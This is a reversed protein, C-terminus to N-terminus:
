SVPILTKRGSTDTLEFSTPREARDLAHLFFGQKLTIPVWGTPVRLRISVVGSTVSGHILVIVRDPQDGVQQMGWSIPKPTGCSGSGGNRAVVRYCREPNAGPQVWLTAPGETTDLNILKRTETVVPQEPPDLTVSQSAVIGGEQNQAEITAGGSNQNLSAMLYNEVIPVPQTRGDDYRVIVSSVPARVQGHLLPADLLPYNYRTEVAADLPSPAAAAMGTFVGTPRGVTPMQVFRYRIEGERSKAGWLRVPGRATPIELVGHVSDRDLGREPRQGNLWAVVSERPTAGREVADSVDAPAALGFFEFLRSGLGLPPVALVVLLAVLALALVLRRRGHFGTRQSSRGRGLVDDWDPSLSEVAPALAQLQSVLSADFQTM